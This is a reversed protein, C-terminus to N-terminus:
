LARLAARKFLPFFVSATGEGSSSLKCKPGFIDLWKRRGTVAPPKKLRAVATIHSPPSCDTIGQIKNALNLARVASEVVRARPGKVNVDLNKL